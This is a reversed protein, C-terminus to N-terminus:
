RPRRQLRGLFRGFVRNAEEDDAALKQHEPKDRWTPTIWLTGAEGEAAPRKYSWHALRGKDDPFWGSGKVWEVSQGDANQKPEPFQPAQPTNPVWDVKQVLGPPIEVPEFLPRPAAPKKDTTM